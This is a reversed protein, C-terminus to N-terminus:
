YGKGYRREFESMTIAYMVAKEWSSFVRGTKKKSGSRWAAWMKKSKTSMVLWKFKAM